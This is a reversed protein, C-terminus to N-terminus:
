RIGNATYSMPDLVKVRYAWANGGNNEADTRYKNVINQATAPHITTELTVWIGSERGQITYTTAKM